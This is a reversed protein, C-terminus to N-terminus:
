RQSRESASLNQASGAELGIEAHHRVLDDTDSSQVRLAAEADPSRRGKLGIAAQMRIDWRSSAAAAVLRRTAAETPIHGLGILVFGDDDFAPDGFIELFAAPHREAIAVVAAALNDLVLREPVGPTETRRKGRLEDRLVALGDRGTAGWAALSESSGELMARRLLEGADTM